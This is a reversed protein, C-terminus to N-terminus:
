GLYDNGKEKFILELIENLRAKDDLLYLYGILAELGTSRKYEAIGYHKSKTSIPTNIARKVVNTEVETLLPMIKYLEESQASANVIETAMKHLKNPKGQFFRLEYERACLTYVADGIWALTSVPLNLLESKDLKKFTYNDM